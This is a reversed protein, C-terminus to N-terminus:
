DINRNKGYFIKGASLNHHYACGRAYMKNEHLCKKADSCEVYLNCCGFRHGGGSVFFDDFLSEIIFKVLSKIADSNENISVRTFVESKRKNIEVDFQKAVIASVMNDPVCFIIKRCDTKKYSKHQINLLSTKVNGNSNVGKPFDPQKVYVSYSTVKNEDRSLNEGLTLSGDPLDENKILDVLVSDVVTRWNNGEFLNIQEM